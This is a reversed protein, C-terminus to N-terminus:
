EKGRHAEAAGPQRLKKLADVVLSVKSGKSGKVLVVDGPDVLHRAREALEEASKYWEGRKARPLADRLAAMRPGAMHVLDVSAM